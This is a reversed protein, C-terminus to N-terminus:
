FPLKIGGGGTGPLQIGGGTTGPIKIGGGGGSLGLKGMVCTGVNFVGLGLNPAQSTIAALCKTVQDPSPTKSTDSLPACATLTDLDITVKNDDCCKQIIELPNTQTEQESIVRKILRILESETLRIKKKM